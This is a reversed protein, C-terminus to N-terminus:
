SASYDWARILSQSAAARRAFAGITRLLEDKTFVYIGSPDATGREAIIRAAHRKRAEGAL